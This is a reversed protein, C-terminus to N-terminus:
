NTGNSSDGEGPATTPRVVVPEYGHERQRIIRASELLDDMKLSRAIHLGELVRGFVTHRGDLHPTPRHTIFFQSGGTNPGSNAMSLVGPYHRRYGEPFEDLITYGPGGTGVPGKPADEGTKSYPDGGQSMFGPIVRHFKTGDYHGSRVLSIFNAVTNPAENEFLELVIRGRSTLLEVRPLDDAVAEAERTEKETPWHDLLPQFGAIERRVAGYRALVENEMRADMPMTNITNRADEIFGESLLASARVICALPYRAFDIPVEDLIQVADTYRQVGVLLNAWFVRLGPAQPDLAELRDLMSEMHPQDNLWMSMQAELALSQETAERQTNFAAIRNRLGRIEPLFSQDVRGVAQLRRILENSERLLGDFTEPAPEQAPEQAPPPADPPQDQALASAPAGLLALALLSMTFFRIQM